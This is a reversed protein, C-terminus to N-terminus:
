HRKRRSGLKPSPTCSVPSGRSGHDEGRGLDRDSVSLARGRHAGLGVRVCVYVYVCPESLPSTTGELSGKIGDGRRSVTSSTM